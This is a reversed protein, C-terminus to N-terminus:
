HAPLKDPAIAHTVTQPHPPPAFMGLGLVGGAAILLLLVFLVILIRGM